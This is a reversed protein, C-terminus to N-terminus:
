ISKEVVPEPNEVKEEKEVVDKIEIQDEQPEEEQNNDSM